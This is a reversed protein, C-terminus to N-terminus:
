ARPSPLWEPWNCHELGLGLIHGKRVFDALTRCHMKQMAHARHTKITIESLDMAAAIQKNMLGTVVHALIERERETLSLYCSRLAAMAREERLRRADKHLAESIADLIVQDRFPKTLFDQAGAKMAQVVMPIDGYGTIFIIPIAVGAGVLQRQLELGSIKPMRVDLVLCNPVKPKVFALFDAANAFTEVQMGVSRLLFDLSDRVSVDDDVIYVYSVEERNSAEIPNV